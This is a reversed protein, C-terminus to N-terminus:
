TVTCLNRSYSVTRDDDDDDDYDNNDIAELASYSGEADVRSKTEVDARSESGVDPRARAEVDVRSPTAAREPEASSRTASGGGLKGTKKQGSTQM